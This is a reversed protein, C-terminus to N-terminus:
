SVKRISVTYRTSFKQRVSSGIYLTTGGDLRINVKINPSVSKITMAQSYKKLKKECQKQTYRHKQIDKDSLGAKALFYKETSLQLVDTSVGGSTINLRRPVGGILRTGLTIDDKFAGGNADTGKSKNYCKLGSLKIEYTGDSPTSFKVYKIGTKGKGIRITTKGEKIEALQEMQTGAQVQAANAITEGTSCTLICICSFLAAAKGICAKRYM